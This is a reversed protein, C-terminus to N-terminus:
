LFQNGERKREEMGLLKKAKEERKEKEEIESFNKANEKKRGERRDWLLPVVM